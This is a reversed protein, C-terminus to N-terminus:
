EKRKKVISSDRESPRLNDPLDFDFDEDSKPKAVGQASVAKVQSDGLEDHEEAEEIISDTRSIVAELRQGENKIKQLCQALREPLRWIFIIGNDSTTILHKLNNSFCMATTIQGPQARCLPKGTAAEYITVRKSTSSSVVVSAYPDIMVRLQM